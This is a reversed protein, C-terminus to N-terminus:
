DSLRVGWLSKDGRTIYLLYRGDPSVSVQSISATTGGDTSGPSALALTAGTQTNFAFLSDPPNLLGQHWLDLYNTPVSSVPAACFLTSSATQSWACKEPVPQFSLARDQGTATSHAYTLRSGNATTQYIITSFAADAMASLGQAYLLQSVTGTKTSVSFAIGPSNADPRSQVLLVNKSPWSLTVQSLPLTFLAHSGTGDVNAIYGTSGNTTLLLYAVSSGDPSVALSAIDDPLFRIQLPAPNSSTTSAQSSSTAAAPFGVFVTKTAGSSVAM